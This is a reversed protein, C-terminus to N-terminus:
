ARETFDLPILSFVIADEAKGDRFLGNRAIGECVAGLKIAVRQSAHNHPHILIEIRQLGLRGFGFEAAKRAAATAVGRGYASTTVWYGLNASRTTADLRNLGVCGLLANTAAEFIGFVFASEAQRLKACLSIWAEADARGYDPKAWSLVRSLEPLSTRVVACLRDADEQLLARLEIDSLPMPMRSTM